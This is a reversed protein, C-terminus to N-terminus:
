YVLDFTKRRNALTEIELCALREEYCMYPLNCESFLRKTFRRQVGEIYSVDGLLHPSWITSNYELIPRVYCVYAKLLSNVNRTTFSKFIMGVIRSAKNSIKKVHLSFKLDSSIHVGLDSITNVSPFLCNSFYYPVHPNKLGLYIVSCKEISVSLQWRISWEFIFDLSTQLKNLDCARNRIFYIKLDDAYLKICCSPDIGDIVDNIYLLFLLPGLVSGQPVGSLVNKYSSVTSNIVVRQIRHALFSEIWM